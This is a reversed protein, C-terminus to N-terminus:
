LLYFNNEQSANELLEFLNLCNDLILLTNVEIIECEAKGLLRLHKTFKRKYQDM